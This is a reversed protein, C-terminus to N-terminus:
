SAEGLQTPDHLQLRPLQVEQIRLATNGCADYPFEVEFFFIMMIKWKSYHQFLVVEAQNNVQVVAPYTMGPGHRRRGTQLMMM